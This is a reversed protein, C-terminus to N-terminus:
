ADEDESLHKPPTAGFMTYWEREAERDPVIERGAELLNTSMANKPTVVVIEGRAWELGKHKVIRIEVRYGEQLHRSLVTTACVAEGSHPHSNPLDACGLIKFKGDSEEKLYLQGELLPKVMPLIGGNWYLDKKFEEPDKVKFPTSVTVITVKDSFEYCAM